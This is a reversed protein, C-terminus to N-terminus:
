PASGGLGGFGGLGPGFGPGFGPGAEPLPPVSAPDLEELRARVQDRALSEAELPYETMYQKYTELAAPGQGSGELLRGKHWLAQDRFFDGVEGLLPELAALADDYRGQAELTVVLGDRALYVLSHGPQRELFGRYAKEAGAFDSAKALRAARVLDAAVNAPSEPAQAELDALAADVKEHLKTEDEAVPVPLPRVREATQTALDPIAQGRAEYAVAEALVRTSTARDAESAERWAYVGAGIGSIAVILGIVAWPRQLFGRGAKRVSVQFADQEEGAPAKRKVRARNWKPLDRRDAAESAAENAGVNAGVNAKTADIKVVDIKALAGPKAAGAKAAEATITEGKTAGATVAEAKAAEATVAEARAAEATVTATATATAAEAREKTAAAADGPAREPDKSEEDSV